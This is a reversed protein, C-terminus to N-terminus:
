SAPTLFLAREKERRHTLHEIVKGGAKNHGLFADAAGQRDGENFKALVPSKSFNGLGLNYALSVMASFENSNASRTLRKRVGDEATKVDQRLLADAQQETITSAEGAKM